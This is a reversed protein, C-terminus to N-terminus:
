GPYTRVYGDLRFTEADLVIFSPLSLRKWFAFPAIPNHAAVLLTLVTGHAVIAATQGGADEAIARVAAEFRTLAARATEQGMVLEDPRAFFAAIAEHLTEIPAFDFGTRDNEQLGDRPRVDLVLRVGVLAATELAKPELSAYLRAVGQEALAAALWVCRARGEDSLVWRPSPIAPDIVPAAHKILILKPM